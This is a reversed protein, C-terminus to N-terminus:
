DAAQVGRPQAMVPGAATALLVLVMAHMKM